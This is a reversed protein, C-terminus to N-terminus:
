RRTMMSPRRSLARLLSMPSVGAPLNLVQGDSSPGARDLGPDAPRGPFTPPISVALVIRSTM